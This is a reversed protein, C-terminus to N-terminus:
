SRDEAELVTQWISLATDLKTLQPLQYISKDSSIITVENTDVNFGAGEKSVDNAIIWDANKRNIKGMANEILNETEAAFGILTQHEKKAGM